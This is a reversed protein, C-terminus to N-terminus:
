NFKYKPFAYIALPKGELNTKKVNNVTKNKAGEDVLEWETDFAWIYRSQLLSDPLDIEAKGQGSHEIWGALNRWTSFSLPKVVTWLYSWKNAGVHKHEAWEISM